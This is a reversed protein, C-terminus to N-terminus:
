YWSSFYGFEADDHVGSFAYWLGGNGNMIPFGINKLMCKLWSRLKILDVAIEPNM